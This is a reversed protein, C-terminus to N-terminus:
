AYQRVAPTERLRETAFDIFARVKAAAHRGEPYVLHISMPKEEYDTLVTEFKGAEIAPSVQYSLLRAIGWGEIASQLAADTANTM